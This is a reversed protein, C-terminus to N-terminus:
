EKPISCNLAVSLLQLTDELIEAPVLTCNTKSTSVNLSVSGTHIQSATMASVIGCEHYDIPRGGLRVSTWKQPSIILMDQPFFDLDAENLLFTVESSYSWVGFLFQYCPESLLLSPEISLGQSKDSNVVSEVSHMFLSGSDATVSSASADKNSGNGNASKKGDISSQFEKAIASYRSDFLVLKTIIDKFTNYKGSHQNMNLEALAYEDSLINLEFGERFSHSKLLSQVSTELSANREQFESKECAQKFISTAKSIEHSPVLFIECSFTSIHFISMNAESLRKSFHHLAGQFENSSTDRLHILAFDAPSIDVDEDTFNVGTLLRRLLVVSTEDCIISLGGDELSLFHFGDDGDWAQQIHQIIFFSTLEVLRRSIHVVKLLVSTDVVIQFLKNNVITEKMSVCLIRARLSNQPTGPAPRM